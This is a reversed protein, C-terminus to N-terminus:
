GSRWWPLGMLLIRKNLSGQVFIDKSENELAWTTHLTLLCVSPFKIWVRGLRLTVWSANEVEEGM